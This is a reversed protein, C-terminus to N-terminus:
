WSRSRPSRWTPPQGARPDHEGPERREDAIQRREKEHEVVDMEETCGRRHLDKTEDHLLHRGARACRERSPTCWRQRDRAPARVTLEDVELEVVQGHRLVFPVASSRPALSSTVGLSAASSTSSVSPQGAPRYKLVSASRWREGCSANDKPPSSRRSASYKRSSTKRVTGSSCAANRTCQETSSRRVPGAHSATSWRSPEVTKSSSSSREFRKTIANSRVRVDYRNWWRKRSRNRASSRQRSGSSSVVSWRLALSHLAAARRSRRRRRAHGPLRRCRGPRPASRTLAARRHTSSGAGGGDQSPELREVHVLDCGRAGNARACCPGGERGFVGCVDFAPRRDQVTMATVPDQRVASRETAAMARSSARTPFCPRCWTRSSAARRTRAADEPSHTAGGRRDAPRSRPAGARHRRPPVCCARPLYSDRVAGAGSGRATCRAVRAAPRHRPRIPHPQAIPRHPARNCRRTRGRRAARSSDPRRSRTTPAPM